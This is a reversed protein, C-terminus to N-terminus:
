LMQASQTVLLYSRNGVIAAIASAAEDAAMKIRPNAPMTM